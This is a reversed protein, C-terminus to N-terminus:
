QQYKLLYFDDNFLFLANYLNYQFDDKYYYKSIYKIVKIM